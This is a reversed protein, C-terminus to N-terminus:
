KVISIIAMKYVVKYFIILLLANNRECKDRINGMKSLWQIDLDKLGQFVIVTLSDVGGYSCSIAVKRLSFKKGRKFVKM